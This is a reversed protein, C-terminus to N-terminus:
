KKSHKKGWKKRGKNWFELLMSMLINTITRYTSSARSIKKWNIKLNMTSDGLESIGEVKRKM